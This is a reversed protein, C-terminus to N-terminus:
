QRKKAPGAVGDVVARRIEDRQSAFTLAHGLPLPAAAATVALAPDVVLNYFSEAARREQMNTTPSNKDTALGGFDLAARQVRGFAPGGLESGPLKNYRASTLSNVFPDALGFMQAQSMTRLLEVPVGGIAAKKQKEEREKDKDRGAVLDRMATLMGGTMALVAATYLAPHPRGMMESMTGLEDPKFLPEPIQFTM